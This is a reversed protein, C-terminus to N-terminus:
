ISYSHPLYFLIFTPISIAKFVESPPISQYLRVPSVSLLDCTEAVRVSLCVSRYLVVAFGILVLFGASPHLQRSDAVGMDQNHSVDPLLLCRCVYHCHTSQNMTKHITDVNNLLFASSLGSATSSVNLFYTGESRSFPSLKQLIDRLGIVSNDMTQTSGRIPRTTPRLFKM